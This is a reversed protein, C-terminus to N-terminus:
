ELRKGEEALLRLLQRPKVIRTAKLRGGAKVKIKVAVRELL